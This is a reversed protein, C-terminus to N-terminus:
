NDPRFQRRQRRPKLRYRLYTGVQSNRGITARGKAAGSENNSGRDNVFDSSTDRGPKNRKGYDFSFLKTGSPAPAATVAIPRLHDRDISRSYRHPTTTATTSATV